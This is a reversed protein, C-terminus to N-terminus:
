SEVAIQQWRIGVATATTTKVSHVCLLVLSFFCIPCVSLNRGLWFTEPLVAEIKKHASQAILNPKVSKKEGLLKEKKWSRTKKRLQELIYEFQRSKRQICRRRKILKDDTTTLLAVWKETTTTPHSVKCLLLM